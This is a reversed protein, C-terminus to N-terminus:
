LKKSIKYGKESLRCFVEEYGYLFFYEVLGKRLLSHYVDVGHISIFSGASIYSDSISAFYKLAKKEDVTLAKRFRRNAIMLIVFAVIILVFFVLSANLLKEHWPTFLTVASFLLLLLGLFGLAVMVWKLTYEYKQKM